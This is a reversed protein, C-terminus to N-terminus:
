GLLPLWGIANEPCPVGDVEWWYCGLLTQQFAWSPRKDQIFLCFLAPDLRVIPLVTATMPIYLAKFDLDSSIM